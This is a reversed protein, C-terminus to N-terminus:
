EKLFSKASRASRVYFVSEALWGLSLIWCFVESVRFMTCAKDMGTVWPFAVPNNFIVKWQMYNTWLCDMASGDAMVDAGPLVPLLAALLVAATFIFITSRLIKSPLWAKYNPSLDSALIISYLVSSVTTILMYVYTAPYAFTAFSGFGAASAGNDIFSRIATSVGVLLGFLVLGITANWIHLLQITHISKM